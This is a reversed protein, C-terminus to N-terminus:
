RKPHIISYMNKFNKTNKEDNLYQLIDRTMRNMWGMCGDVWEHKPRCDHVHETLQSLTATESKNRPSPMPDRCHRLLPLSEGGSNKQKQKKKSM